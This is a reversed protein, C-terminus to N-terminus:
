SKELDERSLSKKLEENENRKSITPKRMTLKLRGTNGPSIDKKAAITTNEKRKQFKAGKRHREKFVRKENESRRM